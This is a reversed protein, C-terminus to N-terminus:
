QTVTTLVAARWRAVAENIQGAAALASAPAFESIDTEPHKAAWGDRWAHFLAAALPPNGSSSLIETIHLLETQALQGHHAQAFIGQLVAFTQDEPPEPLIQGAVGYYEFLARVHDVFRPVVADWDFLPQVFSRAQLGWHHLKDINEVFYKMGFYYGEVDDIGAVWGFPEALLSLHDNFGASRHTVIPNQALMAEAIAIGITEGDKRAHAFVDIEQYFEELERDSLWTRFVVQKLGLRQVTQRALDSPNIYIYIVREGYEAELRAFADISIPDFIAADARGSRGFRVVDGAAKPQAKRANMEPVKLPNFFQQVGEIGKSILSATQQTGSVYIRRLNGNSCVNGFPSILLLPIEQPLHRLLHQNDSWVLAVFARPNIDNIIDEIAPSMGLVRCPAVPEVVEYTFPVFRLNRHTAMSAPIDVDANAGFVLHVIFEDTEGLILALQRLLKESSGTLRDMLTHHYFMVDFTPNM